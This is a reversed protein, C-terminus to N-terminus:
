RGSRPFTSGFAIHRRLPRLRQHRRRTRAGPSISRERRDRAFASRAPHRRPCASRAAPRTRAVHAARTTPATAAAAERFVRPTKTPAISPEHVRSDECTLMKGGRFLAQTERFSFSRSARLSRRSAATHLSESNFHEGEPRWTARDRARWPTTSELFTHVFVYRAVGGKGGIADNPADARVASTERRRGGIRAVRLFRGISWFNKM